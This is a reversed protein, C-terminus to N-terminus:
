CLANILAGCEATIDAPCMIMPPISDIFTFVQTCMTDLENFQNYFDFTRTIVYPDGPCGMGLTDDSAIIHFSDCLFVELIGGLNVFDISDTGMITDLMSAPIPTIGAICDGNEDPPCTPYIVCCDGADCEASVAVTGVVFSDGDGPLCGPFGPSQFGVKITDVYGPLNEIITEYILLYDGINQTPHLTDVILFETM